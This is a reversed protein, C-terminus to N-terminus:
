SLAKSDRPRIPNLLAQHIANLVDNLQELVQNNWFRIVRFGKANLYRTRDGDYEQNDLHQSGDVEIILNQMLCIFDVVYSGVIHQRRFKYGCFKRKRLSFWLITEAKTPNKRLNRSRTKM